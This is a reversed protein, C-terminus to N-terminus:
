GRVSQEDELHCATHMRELFPDRTALLEGDLSWYQTVGIVPDDKTLGEGRTSITEIVSIVRAREVVREGGALNDIQM